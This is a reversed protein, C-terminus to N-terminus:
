GTIWEGVLRLEIGAVKDPIGGWDEGIITTM